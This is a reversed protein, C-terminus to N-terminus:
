VIAIRFNFPNKKNYTLIHIPSDFTNLYLGLCIAELTSTNEKEFKLNLLYIEMFHNKFGNEKNM